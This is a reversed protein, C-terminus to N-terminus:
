SIVAKTPLLVLLVWGALRHIDFVWGNLTFFLGYVGTLGLVVVTGLIGLNTFRLVSFKM